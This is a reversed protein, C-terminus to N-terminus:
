EEKKNNRANNVVNNNSGPQVVQTGILMDREEKTIREYESNIGYGLEYAMESATQRSLAGASRLQMINAVQETESM